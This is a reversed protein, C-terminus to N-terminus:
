LHTKLGSKLGKEGKSKKEMKEGVGETRMKKGAAM